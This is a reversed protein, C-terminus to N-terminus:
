QEESVRLYRGPPVGLVRKFMAIFASPSQYGLDYAVTTVPIELALHSIASLLRLQQRWNGFSMGTEKLFLRALTRSSAGTMRSWAALSRNDGPNRVLRDTVARLRPDQPMPLHLPAPKLGRLQDLIVEMLRIDAPSVPDRNPLSVIKLILERLLPTVTLVCCQLSLGHIEDPHIYLSRMALPGASKVEHDTRAPVWVAQQPPVVWTGEATMVTMVGASAYVLQAREHRHLPFHHTTPHDSASVTIPRGPDPLDGPHIPSSKITQKASNMSLNYYSLCPRTKYSHAMSRLNLM